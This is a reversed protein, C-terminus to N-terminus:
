TGSPNELANGDTPRTGRAMRSLGGPARFRHHLSVILLAYFVKFGQSFFPFPSFPSPSHFFISFLEPSKAKILASGYDLHAIPFRLEAGLLSDMLNKGKEGKRGKGKEGM